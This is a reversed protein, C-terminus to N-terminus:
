EGEKEDSWAYMVEFDSIASKYGKCYEETWVDEMEEVVRKLSELFVEFENIKSEDM